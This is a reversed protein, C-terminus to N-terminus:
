KVWDLTLLANDNLIRWSVSHQRQFVAKDRYADVADEGLVQTTLYLYTRQVLGALHLSTFLIGGAEVWIEHAGLQGLVALVASLDLKEDKCSIPIYECDARKSYQPDLSLASDYFIMVKEAKEFLRASKSLSLQRDLIALKKGKEQGHLRATLLPDDKHVTHATTLIWDSQWRHEHTFEGCADNSLWIPKGSTGAIKGDLSLALKVSVWPRQYKVWYVYSEYFVNIEPLPCFIVEIGKAKLLAPTDNQAVILNPDKFGYVVCEIGYDIIANVCPPTRGWHNCPELTVYLTVHPLQVPLQSLVVQEAHAKGPGEHYGQALIQEGQVAVAGVSPNPACKGRGLRAQELAMRLYRKHNMYYKVKM